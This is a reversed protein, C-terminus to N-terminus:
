PAPTPRAPLVPLRGSRLRASSSTRTVSAAASAAPRQIPRPSLSAASWAATSPMRAISSVTEIAPTTTIPSPSFSSAGISKLPSSTPSPCPGPPPRRRRGARPCAGSRWPGASRSRPSRPRRARSSTREPRPRRCPCSRRGPGLRDVHDVDLRRRALVDLPDCPGLADRGLSTETTTSSRSRCSASISSSRSAPAFTCSIGSPSTAGAIAAACGPM